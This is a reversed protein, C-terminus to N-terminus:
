VFMEPFDSKLRNELFKSESAILMRQQTVIHFYHTEISPHFTKSFKELTKLQRKVRKENKENYVFCELVFFSYKKKKKEREKGIISIFM